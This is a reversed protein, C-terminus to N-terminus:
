SSPEETEIRFEWSDNIINHKPHDVYTLRPRPKTPKGDEDPDTHKPLKEYRRFVMEKGEGERPLYEWRMRRWSWKRPRPKFNFLLPQFARELLQDDLGALARSMARACAPSIPPRRAVFVPPSKYGWDIGFIRMM